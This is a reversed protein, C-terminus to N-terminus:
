RVDFRYLRNADMISIVKSSYAPDTAYGAAHVRRIFERSDNRARFAGAYRPNETLFEAHDVFSATATRYLRFASVRIVQQGNESEASKRLVCGVAEDGWRYRGGGLSAAKIGFYNNADATHQGAASELIGQGLTVSGPVQTRRDSRRADDGFWAVFQGTDAPAPELGFPVDATCSGEEAQGPQPGGTGPAQDEPAPKPGKPGRAKCPRAVRGDSGTRTYSDPIFGTRPATIRNWLTSTGLTGTVAPGTTQCSIRVATGSALRGIERSALNPGRHVILPLSETAVRGPKTRGPSQRKGCVGAVLGDSGTYVRADSVFGTGTGIRVRDWVESRGYPGTVAPGSAQCRIVVRTGSALRAVIRGAGPRAHVAVRKGADAKVVGVPGSGASPGDAAPRSADAAVPVALALGAATLLITRFSSHM